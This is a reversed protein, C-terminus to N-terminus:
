KKEKLSGWEMIEMKLISGAKEKETAMEDRGWGKERLWSEERLGQEGKVKVNWHLTVNDEAAM